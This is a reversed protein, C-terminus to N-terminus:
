HSIVPFQPFHLLELISHLVFLFSFSYFLIFYIYEIIRKVGRNNENDCKVTIVPKRM